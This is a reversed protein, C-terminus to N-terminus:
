FNFAIKTQLHCLYFFLILSKMINKGHDIASVLPVHGSAYTTTDCHLLLLVCTAPWPFLLRPLGLMSGHAENWHGSSSLFLNSCLFSNLFFLAFFLFYIFLLLNFIFIFFSFLFFYFILKKGITSDSKLFNPSLWVLSTESRLWSM